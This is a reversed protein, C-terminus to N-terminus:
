QRTPSFYFILMNEKPPLHNCGNILEVRQTPNRLALGTAPLQLPLGQASISLCLSPKRFDEEKAKLNLTASISISDLNLFFFILTNQLYKYAM